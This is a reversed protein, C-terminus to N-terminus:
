DLAAFALSLERYLSGMKGSISTKSSIINRIAMLHSHCAQCKQFREERVLDVGVSVPPAAMNSKIVPAFNRLILKLASAGAQVYSEYKSHFLEKLNPLILLCIGLNWLTQKLCLVNLVDVLIAQDNMNVATEVSTKVEGDAWYRAVLSLNRQRAAMIACISAHSKSLSSLTEAESVQLEPSKFNPEHGQSIVNEVVAAPLFDAMQLGAPKDRDSPVMNATPAPALSPEKVPKTQKFPEQKTVPRAPVEKVPEPVPTDDLPAVFPEHKKRLPPSRDLKSREQFVEDANEKEDPGEKEEPDTNPEEKLQPAERVSKQKTSTTPPRETNFNRRPPTKTSPVGKLVPNIGVVPPDQSEGVHKGVDRTEENLKTIMNEIHGINVVWVSVNTQSFGAGILQNSYFTFDGLKGWGLPFSEYCKIPEWGYVKLSDQAGSFLCLGDTHFGICRIPHTEPETSSVLEFTELDWYKVTRDSSGTALLFEKPHFEACNVPGTHMKFDNIIKGATLDWLKAAGDEGGSIIWRGDPSFRLHNVCDTHGKYTFICGKRRIDWLKLNTDLSGSAVFDGFPHFDLSRISSKHGTLTRLIKAAELDWIKLTGSQSGAVVLDEGSNFQVCEVPSTHGALSMIVNPQGVAWMNVKRDEGGTVMVRGTSPGLSLCNINSGHAVFEQLKWARKAETAM